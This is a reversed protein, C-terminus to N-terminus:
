PEPDMVGTVKLVLPVTPMGSLSAPPFREPAERRSHLSGRISHEMRPRVHRVEIKVNLDANETRARFESESVCKM